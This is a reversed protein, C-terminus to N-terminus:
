PCVRSNLVQVKKSFSSHPLQGPLFIVEDELPFWSLEAVSFVELPNEITIITRLGTLGNFSFREAETKCTTASAFSYWYFVRGVALKEKWTSLALNIGRYAVPVQVPQLKRFAGLLLRLYPKWKKLSNDSRNPDRLAENVKKYISHDVEM